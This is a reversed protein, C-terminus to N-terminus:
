SRMPSVAGFKNNIDSHLSMSYEGMEIDAAQSRWLSPFRFHLWSTSAPGATSGQARRLRSLQRTAWTSSSAPTQQEAPLFELGQLSCSSVPCWLSVDSHREGNLIHVVSCRM